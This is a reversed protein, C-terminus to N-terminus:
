LTGDLVTTTVTTTVYPNAGSVYQYVLENVRSAHVSMATDAQEPTAFTQTASSQRYYAYSVDSATPWKEMDDITAVHSYTSDTQKYVFVEEEMETAVTVLSEIQYPEVPEGAPPTVVSQTQQLTISAAM